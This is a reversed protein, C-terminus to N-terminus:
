LTSSGAVHIRLENTEPDTPCTKRLIRTQVHERGYILFDHLFEVAAAAAAATFAFIRLKEFDHPDTTRTPSFRLVHTARARKRTTHVTNTNEPIEHANNGTNGKDDHRVKSRTECRRKRITARKTRQANRRENSTEHLAM